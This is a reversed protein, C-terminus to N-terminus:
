SGAEKLTPGFLEELEAPHLHQLEQLVREFAEVVAPDLKTGADQRLIGLAQRVDFAQRYARHSTLADFVDVVHMIRGALSIEQGRLGNPYGTGDCNEHHEMVIRIVGSLAGVPKLVEHSMQPHQKIVTYEEDTLRGPKNLIAEPIGIKGIDHLLGAWELEQLQEPPLGMEQGTLRALIGVRESHGCTYRDKKDIASVLTRVTEFSTRNLREVLHLNRLVHGAYALVSDFLLMDGSTFAHRCRAACMILPEAGEGERLPGAMLHTRGQRLSCTTSITRVLVKQGAHIEEVMAAAHDELEDPLRCRGCTQPDPHKFDEGPRGHGVCWVGQANLSTRLRECLLRKVQHSDTLNAVQATIDFVLNLQEYTHLVEDALAENERLLEECRDVAGDLDPNATPSEATIRLTGKALADGFPIDHVADTM